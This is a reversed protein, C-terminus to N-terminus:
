AISGCHSGQLAWHHAGGEEVVQIFAIDQYAPAWKAIETTSLEKRIARIVRKPMGFETLRRAVVHEIGGNIRWKHDLFQWRGQASSSKNRARYNHHSERKSVCMAWDEFKAPIRAAAAIVRSQYHRASIEARDIPGIAIIAAAVTEIMTEETGNPHLSPARFAVSERGATAVSPRPHSRHRFKTASM